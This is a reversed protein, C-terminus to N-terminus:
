CAVVIAYFSARSTQGGWASQTSDPAMAKCRLGHHRAGQVLNLRVVALVGHRHLSTFSGRLGSIADAIFEASPLRMLRRLSVEKLAMESLYRKSASFRVVTQNVILASKGRCQKLAVMGIIRFRRSYHDSSSRSRQVPSREILAKSAALDDASRWHCSRAGSTRHGHSGKGATGSFGVNPPGEGQPSMGSSQLGAYGDLEGVPLM